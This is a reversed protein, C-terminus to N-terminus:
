EKRWSRGGDFTEASCDVDRRATSCEAVYSWSSCSNRTNQTWEAVLSTRGGGYRVGVSRLMNVPHINDLRATMQAEGVWTRTRFRTRIEDKMGGPNTGVTCGAASVVNAVNAMGGAPMNGTHGNAVNVVNAKKASREKAVANV